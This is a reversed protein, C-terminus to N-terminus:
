RLRRRANEFRVKFSSLKRMTVHCFAEQWKEERRWDEKSEEYDDDLTELHLNRQPRPSHQMYGKDFRALDGACEEAVANNSKHLAYVGIVAIRSALRPGEYGSTDLEILKDSVDLIAKECAIPIERQGQNLTAFALDTLVEEGDWVFSPHVRGTRTIYCSSVLRIAQLLEEHFGNKIAKFNEKLLLDIIGSICDFINGLIIPSDNKAAAIAITHICELLRSVVEKQTDREGQQRLM